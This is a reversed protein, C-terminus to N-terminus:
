PNSLPFPRPRIESDFAVFIFTTSTVKESAEQERGRRWATPHVHMSTRGQKKLKAFLSVEDGVKVPLHFRMGDVAVTAGLGGATLTPLNGAAIDM